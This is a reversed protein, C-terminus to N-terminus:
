SQVFERYKNSRDPGAQIGITNEVKTELGEVGERWNDCIYKSHEETFHRGINM